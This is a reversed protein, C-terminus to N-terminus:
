VHLMQHTVPGKSRERDKGVKEVEAEVTDGMHLRRRRHYLLM